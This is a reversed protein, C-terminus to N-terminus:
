EILNRILALVIAKANAFKLWDVFYMSLTSFSISSFCLIYVNSNLYCLVLIVDVNNQHEAEYLTFDKRTKTASLIHNRLRSSAYM